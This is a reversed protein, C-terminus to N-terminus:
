SIKRTAGRVIHGVNGRTVGYEAALEKQTPGFGRGKYRRRIEEVQDTSLKAAGNAEGNQDTGDRYKDAHNEKRTKWSLHNPNVCARNHCDGHAADHKETPPASVGLLAVRHAYQRRGEHRVSGYGKGNTGYPWVICDDTEVAIMELLDEYRSM